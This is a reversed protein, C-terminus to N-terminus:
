ENGIIPLNDVDLRRYDAAVVKGGENKEYVARDLSKVLTGRFVAHTM